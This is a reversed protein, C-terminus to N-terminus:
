HVKSKELLLFFKNIVIGIVAIIVIGSYIDAIQFTYSANLIFFGIGNNSGIMEAAVIVLLASGMALRMGTIINPLTAPIIIEKLLQFRNAGAIKAMRVYQNEIGQVGTITNLLIPIWAVWFVIALKSMFGIGFFFIFLPYLALPSIPRVLEIFNKFLENVRSFMGMGIGMPLAVLMSLLFGAAIVKLSAYIHNWIDPKLLLNITNDVVKPLTPIFVPNLLGFFGLILWMCLFIILILNNVFFDSIFVKILVM